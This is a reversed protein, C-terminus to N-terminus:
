DEPERMPRAWGRRVMEEKFFAINRRQLAERVEPPDDDTPFRWGEPMTRSLLRKLMPNETPFDM